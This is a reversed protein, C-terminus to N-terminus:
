WTQLSQWFPYTIFDGAHCRDSPFFGLPPKFALPLALALASPMFKFAGTLDPSLGLRALKKALIPLIAPGSYLSPLGVLNNNDKFAQPADDLASALDFAFFIEALFLFHLIPSFCKNSRGTDTTKNDKTTVDNKPRIRSIAIILEMQEELLHLIGM